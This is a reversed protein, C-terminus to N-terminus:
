KATQFDNWSQIRLSTHSARSMSAVGTLLIKEVSVASASKASSALYAVAANEFAFRRRREGRAQM